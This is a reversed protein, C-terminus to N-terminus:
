KHEHHSHGKVGYKNTIPDKFIFNKFPMLTLIMYFGFIVFLLIVAFYTIFFCISNM